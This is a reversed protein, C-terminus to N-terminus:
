CLTIMSFMKYPKKGESIFTTGNQKYIKRICYIYVHANSVSEERKLELKRYIYTVREKTDIICIRKFTFWALFSGFVYIVNKCNRQM